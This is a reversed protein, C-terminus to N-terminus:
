EDKGPMIKLVSPPLHLADGVQVGHAGFFGARAEIATM